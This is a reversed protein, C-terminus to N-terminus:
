DKAPPDVGEDLCRSRIYADRTVGIGNIASSQEDYEKGFKAIPDDAPKPPAEPGSAPAPAPALARAQIERDVFWKRVQDVSCGAKIFEAAKAPDNATVCIQVVEAYQQRDQVRPDAPPSSAAPPAPSSNGAGSPQGASSAAPQAPSDPSASAAPSDDAPPAPPQPTPKTQNTPPKAPPKSVDDVGSLERFEAVAQQYRGLLESIPQAFPRANDPAQQTTASSEDDVDYVEHVIGLELAQDATLWSEKGLLEAADEVSLSTRRSFAASMTQTINRLMTAYADHDEATGYMGGQPPHLLFQGTSGMRRKDGVLALFAAASAAQGLVDVTITAGCNALLNYIAVAEFVQGGVSNIRLTLEDVDGLGALVESVRSASISEEYDYPEIIGFIEVVPPGNTPKRLTVSNRPATRATRKAM